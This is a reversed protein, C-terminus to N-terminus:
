SVVTMPISSYGAVNSMQVREARSEDISIEKTSAFLLEFAIRTELRALSAGICKHAGHGFSLQIPFQRKIDFRDPEPFQRGDRCAAGTLLLVRSEKPMTVGHLTIEETTTRGQIQSPPWYRLAEEVAGPIGLPDARLDQLADPHRHLLVLLAGMLKTATESGAAQLLSCFGVIEKDTLKEIEGTDSKVEAAVLASILDEQPKTRREAVLSFFYGMKKKSAAIGTATPNGTGEEVTLSDNVADRLWQLDAKPVGLLLSIAEVPVCGAFDRVFDGGGAELLPNLYELTLDRVVDEMAAIRKPTFAKSVLRRHRTQKPPDMMIIMPMAAIREPSMPRVTVGWATSFVKTDMAAELVDDFRSLAYFGLEPNHHVPEHDRLQGYLEYPDNFFTKSFPDFRMLWILGPSKGAAVLVVSRVIFDRCRGDRRYTFLDQKICFM